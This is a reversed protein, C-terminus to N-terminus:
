GGDCAASTGADPREGTCEEGLRYDSRCECLCQDMFAPEACTPVIDIQTEAMRGDKDEIRITLLYPQAHVDRDLNARPCAPLNSYNTLEAPQLPELWGDATPELTVPRRELAIIASTCTDRISTSIDLPCGDVNRARV